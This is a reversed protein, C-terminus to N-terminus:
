EAGGGHIPDPEYTDKIEEDVYCKVEDLYKDTSFDNSTDAELEEMYGERDELYAKPDFTQTEVTHSYEGAKVENHIETFQERSIPPFKVRDGARLLIPDDDFVPLPDSGRMSLAFRHIPVPTRGFMQYGGPNPISYLGTQAGGWALTGEPTETRPREYKPTQPIEEREKGLMYMVPLGPTFCIMMVLHQASAVDAAFDQVSEYGNIRAMYRINREWTHNGQEFQRGTELSWPDDYLLPFEFLRSEIEALAPTQEEIRKIREVFEDLDVEAPEYKVMLSTIGPITEQVGEPQTEQLERTLSQARFHTRMDIEQGLEIYLFRDNAVNFRIDEAM